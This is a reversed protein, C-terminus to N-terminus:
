SKLWDGINEVRESVDCVFDALQNGHETRGSFFLGVLYGGDLVWRSINQKQETLIAGNRYIDESLTM